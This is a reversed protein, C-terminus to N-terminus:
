LLPWMGATNWHRETNVPTVVQSHVLLPWHSEQQEEKEHVTSTPCYKREKKRNNNNKSINWFLFSIFISDFRTGSEFFKALIFTFHAHDLLKSDQNKFQPWSVINTMKYSVLFFDDYWELYLSSISSAVDLLINSSLKPVWIWFQKFTLAIFCTNSKCSCLIVFLDCSM